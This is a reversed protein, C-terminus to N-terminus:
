DKDKHVFNEQEVVPNEATPTAAVPTSSWDVPSGKVVRFRKKPNDKPLWHMRVLLMIMVAHESTVDPAPVSPLPWHFPNSKNSQQKPNYFYSVGEFEITDSPRLHPIRVDNAPYISTDARPQWRHIPKKSIKGKEKGGYVRFFHATSHPPLPGDTYVLVAEFTVSEPDANLPAPLHLADEKSPMKVYYRIGNRSHHPGIKMIPIGGTKEDLLPLTITGNTGVTTVFPEFHEATM